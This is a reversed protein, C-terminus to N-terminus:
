VQMRMSGLRTRLGCFWGLFELVSMRLGPDESVRQRSTRLYSATSRMFETPFLISVKLQFKVNEEM